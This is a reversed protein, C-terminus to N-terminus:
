LWDLYPKFFRSKEDVLYRFQYGFLALECIYGLREAWRKVRGDERSTLRYKLYPLIVEFFLSLVV